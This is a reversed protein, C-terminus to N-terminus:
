DFLFVSAKTRSSEGISYVPRTNKVETEAKKIEMRIKASPNNFIHEKLKVVNQKLGKKM